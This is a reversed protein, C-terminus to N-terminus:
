TFSGSLVATRVFRPRQNISELVHISSVQFHFDQKKIKILISEEPQVKLAEKVNSRVYIQSQEYTNHNVIDDLDKKRIRIFLREHATSSAWFSTCERSDFRFAQLETQNQRKPMCTVKEQKITHTKKHLQLMRRDVTDHTANTAFWDSSAVRIWNLAVIRGCHRIM